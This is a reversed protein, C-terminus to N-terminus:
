YLIGDQIQRVISCLEPLHKVLGEMISHQSKHMNVYMKSIGADRIAMTTVTSTLKLEAIMAMNDVSKPGLYHTYLGEEYALRGDRTRQALKVYALVETQTFHQAHHGGV